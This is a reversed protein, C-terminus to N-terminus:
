QQCAIQSNEWHYHAMKLSARCIPHLRRNRVYKAHLTGGSAYNKGGFACIVCAPSLEAHAHNQCPLISLRSIKLNLKTVVERRDGVTGIIESRWLLGVSRRDFVTTLDTPRSPPQVTALVTTQRHRFPADVTTLVTCTPTWITWNYGSACSNCRRSSM